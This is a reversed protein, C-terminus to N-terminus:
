GLDEFLKKLKLLEPDDISKAQNLKEGYGAVVWDSYSSQIVFHVNGSFFQLEDALKDDYENHYIDYVHGVNPDDQDGDKAVSFGHQKVFQEFERTVSCEWEGNRERSKGAFYCIQCKCQIRRQFSASIRERLQDVGYNKWFLVLNLKCNELKLKRNEKILEQM